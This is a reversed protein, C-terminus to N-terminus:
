LVFCTAGDMPQVIFWAGLYQGDVTFQLFFIPMVMSWESNILLLYSNSPLLLFTHYSNVLFFLNKNQIKLLITHHFSFRMTLLYTTKLMSPASQNLGDFQFVVTANIMTQM